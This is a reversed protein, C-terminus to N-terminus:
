MLDLAGLEMLHGELAVFDPDNVVEYLESDELEEFSGDIIAAYNHYSSLLEELSRNLSLDIVNEMILKEFSNDFRAPGIGM